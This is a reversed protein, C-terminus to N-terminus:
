IENRWNQAQPRGAPPLEWGDNREDRDEHRCKEQGYGRASVCGLTKLKPVHLKLITTTILIHINFRTFLHLTTTKRNWPVVRTVDGLCSPPFGDEIPM